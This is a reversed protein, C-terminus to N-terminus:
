YKTFYNIVYMVLVYKLTLHRLEEKAHKECDFQYYFKLKRVNKHAECIIFLIQLTKEKM